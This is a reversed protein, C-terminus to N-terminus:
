YIKCLSPMEVNEHEDDLAYRLESRLKLMHSYVVDTGGKYMRECKQIINELM